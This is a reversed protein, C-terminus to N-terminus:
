AAPQMAYEHHLGRLVARSTVRAGPPLEHRRGRLKAPMGIPPDPIGPGLASHPRATNFHGIWEALIRRLHREGLPILYDLCERRITGITRECIANAKPTRVPTKLVQLRLRRVSEDLRSAFKADRDRILFEYPHNAPIAERLQQLTWDATPHATVNFHLIKRSAHEIVVFVYLVKFTATVVTFFDCAVIAQAHNKVFTTWHQDSTGGHPGGSPHEPMYKRVTRPSVQLGLKLLLEHAIREEGWAQNERAMQRILARLDRPLAPRGPRSKFKWFLRFGERHWRILTAPKVVVLAERWSFARSLWVLVARTADDVRRPKIGREQFLALQKRLFLNEAALSRVPRHRIAIYQL